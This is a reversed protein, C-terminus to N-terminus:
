FCFLPISNRSHEFTVFVVNVALKLVYFKVDNYLQMKMVVISIHFFSLIYCYFETGSPLLVFKPPFSLKNTTALNLLFLFM